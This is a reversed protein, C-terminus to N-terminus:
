DEPADDNAPPGIRPPTEPSPPRFRDAYVVGARTIAKAMWASWVQLQQRSRLSARLTDMTEALRLPRAGVVETVLGVNWGDGLQIPGFPRGPRAAFALEAYPGELEDAVHRGLRGGLDRSTADLSVERALAAFSEGARLRRLVERATAETEVVINSVDRQEPTRMRDANAVFEARVEADSPIPVKSTVREYLRSTELTRRIEDLVDQESVGVEAMFDDLNTRDGGLREQVVKALGARAEEDSVSVGAAEAEEDLIMGVAMSKAAERRFAERESGGEPERLRYLAVLTDIRQELAAVTVTRERVRFADEEGLGDGAPRVVVVALGVGLALLVVACATVLRRRRTWDGVAKRWESLRLRPRFRFLERVPKM